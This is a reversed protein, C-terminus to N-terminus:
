PIITLSTLKNGVFEAIINYVTVDNNYTVTLHTYYQSIIAPASPNYRVTGISVSPKSSYNGRYEDSSFFQKKIDDSINNSRKLRMYSDNDYVEYIEKVTDMRSVGQMLYLSQSDVLTSVEETVKKDTGMLLLFILTALVAIVCIIISIVTLVKKM